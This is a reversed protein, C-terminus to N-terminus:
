DNSESRWRKGAEFARSNLEFFKAPILKKIAELWLEDSFDLFNSLMGLMVVNLVRSNKLGEAIDIGDIPLVEAGRARCQEVIDDPYEVEGSFVTLPVIAQDNVLVKGGAKLYDLYRLAELREFAVIFDASGQSIVPSFIKEGFRVQSIVSGGRQAMGHVESKKVDHGVLMAAESVIDSAKLIGQGGVGCLVINIIADNKESM